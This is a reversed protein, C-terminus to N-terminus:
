QHIFHFNVITVGPPPPTPDGTGVTSRSTKVIQECVQASLPKKSALLIIDERGTNEDLTLWQDNDPVRFSENAKLPNIKASYRSNPFLSIINQSSDMNYVYVYGAEETKIRVAYRDASTMVEKERVGIEQGTKGLKVITMSVQTQQSVSGALFSDTGACSFLLAAIFIAIWLSKKM